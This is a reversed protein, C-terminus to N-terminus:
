SFGLQKELKNEESFKIIPFAEMLGKEHTQMADPAIGTDLLIYGEPHEILAASVPIEIWQSTANRNSYTKAGGAAGPLFWGSDGGLMGLDLLYIKKAKM